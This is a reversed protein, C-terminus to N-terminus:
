YFIEWNVNSGAVIYRNEIYIPIEDFDPIGVVFINSTNGGVTYIFTTDINPRLYINQTSDYINFTPYSIIRYLYIPAGFGYPNVDKIHFNISAKAPTLPPTDVIDNNKKCSIFSISGM